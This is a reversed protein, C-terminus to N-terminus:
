GSDDIPNKKSSILVIWDCQITVSVHESQDVLVGARMLDSDLRLRFSVNMGAFELSSIKAIAELSNM